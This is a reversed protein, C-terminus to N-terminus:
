TNREPAHVRRTRARPTHRGAISGSLATRIPLMTRRRRSKALPATTKASMFPVGHRTQWATTRPKACSARSFRHAGDAGLKLLANGVPRYGWEADSRACGDGLQSYLSKLAEAIMARDELAERDSREILLGLSTAARDSVVPDEHRTAEILADVAAASAHANGLGLAAYFRVSRDADRLGAVLTEVDQNGGSLALVRM